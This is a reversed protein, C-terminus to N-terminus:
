KKKAVKKEIDGLTKSPLFAIIGVVIMGGVILAMLVFLVIFGASM